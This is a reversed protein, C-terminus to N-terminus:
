GGYVRADHRVARPPRELPFHFHASRELHEFPLRGCAGSPFLTDASLRDCSQRDNSALKVTSGAPASPLESCAGGACPGRRDAPAPLHPTHYDPEAGPEFVVPDVLTRREGTVKVWPHNCGAHAPLPALTSLVMATLWIIASGVWGCGIARTMALVRVSRQSFQLHSAQFPVNERMPDKRHGRARM